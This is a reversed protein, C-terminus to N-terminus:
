SSRPMAASGLELSRAQNHLLRQMARLLEARGFPKRLLTWSDDDALGELADESIFGTMLLLPCDKRLRQLTRVLAAGSLGPMMLDSIIIDPQPGEALRAMLERGSAVPLVECGALELMASLTQRVLQEDDALLVRASVHPLESVDSARQVQPQAPGSHAPFYLEFTSGVGLASRVVIAGRHNKVTGHVAALGLGTGKGLPKTTFFPAFLRERVAVPMGTGTDQVRVVVCQGDPLSTGATERLTSDVELIETSLRLTGGGPMADQANLALNLLANELAALDGLVRAGQSGPIVEITINKHLTRELLRGVETVLDDVDIAVSELRDQRGFALLQKTLSSARQVSKQIIERSTRPVAAGSAGPARDLLECAGSIAALMNNIDHAVGGSLKGLAELRRAQALMVRTAVLDTVDVAEIMVHGQERNPGDFASVTVQYVGQGEVASTMTIERRSRTGQAALKVAHDLWGRDETLGIATLDLTGGLLKEESSHLWAAAHKNVRVVTGANSLLLMGVSAQDFVAHLALESAAQAARAAEADRQKGQAELLASGLMRYMGALLIASLLMSVFYVLVRAEAPPHREPLGLGLRALGISIVGVGLLSVILALAWRGGFLPIVLALLVFGGQYAPAHVSNIMVATTIVTFLMTGLGAAARMWRRTRRLYTVYSLATVFICFPTLRYLETPGDQTAIALASKGMLPTLAWMPLLLWSLVQQAVAERVTVDLYPGSFLARWGRPQYPPM